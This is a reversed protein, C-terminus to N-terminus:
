HTDSTQHNDSIPERETDVEGNRPVTKSHGNANDAEMERPVRPLERAFPIGAEIQDDRGIATAMIDTAFPLYKCLVKAITKYVAAQEYIHWFSDKQGSSKKGPIATEAYRWTQSKARHLKYVQDRSLIRFLPIGGEVIAVMYVALWEADESREANIDSVHRIFPTTGEGHEFPEDPYVMQPPHIALMKPHRMALEMWGRFGIILQCEQGYPVLHARNMFRDPILHLQAAELASQAISLPTCAQLKPSQSIMTFISQLLKSDNEPWARRISAQRERLYKHHQAILSTSM